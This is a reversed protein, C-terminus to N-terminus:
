ATICDAVDKQHQAQKMAHTLDAEHKKTPKKYHLWPAQNEQGKHAVLWSRRCAKLDAEEEAKEKKMKIDNEVTKVHDRFKVM